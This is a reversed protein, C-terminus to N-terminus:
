AASVVDTLEASVVMIYDLLKLARVIDVASKKALNAWSKQDPKTTFSILRGGKFDGKANHLEGSKNDWAVLHKGIRFHQTDTHQWASTLLFTTTGASGIECTYSTKIEYQRAMDNARTIGAQTETIIENWKTDTIHM